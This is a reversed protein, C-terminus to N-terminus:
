KAPPLLSLPISMGMAQYGARNPHLHDGPGGTTSDPVFEARLAGTKPDATAKDFDVFGDFINATRIWDNLARRKQEQEPSGGAYGISSTLTAAIVRIGKAHMRTVGEKMGAEVAEVSAGATKNFDNIGELWIVTSVNSLGLVDRDLRRLASPGGSFPMAASYAGPGVVRNGGIGANVVSFPNRGGLRDHVRRSLVDPWRDDGNLTSATGDTISDGFAVITRTPTAIAMDVADVFFWSTTSYPFANEGGEVGHSGAGPASLYSTTLAKAHWTMPGSAGVIHFSIALKRGQMAPAVVFADSWVFEGPAITVSAKKSFMVPWSMGKVIAAGSQQIGAFVGDFTVPQTGFANSLRIRAQPGWVDPRVIM